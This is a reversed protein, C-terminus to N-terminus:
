ASRTATPCCSTAARRRPLEQDGLVPLGLPRRQPGLRPRAARLPDRGDRVGRHDDRHAGHRARQGAPHRAPGPGHRLRRELAAGRPAVGDEAPLLVARQRPRRAHPRQPLLLARLRRPRRRDGRRRRHHAERRPAVRPPARRRHAARRRHGRLAQGRPQRLDAQRRRVPRRHPQGPGLGRAGVHPQALGRPRGALGERGLEARQDDDQPRHSRDDRRPPRAPRGAGRRGDLRRRPRGEDGAPLGADRHARDGRPAGQPAGAAPAPTPQAHRHLEALFALAEDTLVEEQRDVTYGSVEVGTAM